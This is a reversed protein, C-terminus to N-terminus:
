GTAGAAADYVYGRAVYPGTGPDTVSGNLSGFGTCTINGTTGPDSCFAWASQPNAAMMLAFAGSTFATGTLLRVRRAFSGEPKHVRAIAAPTRGAKTSKRM